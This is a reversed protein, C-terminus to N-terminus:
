ILRDGTLCSVTNKGCITEKESNSDPIALSLFIESYKKQSVSKKFRGKIPHCGPGNRHQFPSPISYQMEKRNVTYIVQGFGGTWSRQINEEM